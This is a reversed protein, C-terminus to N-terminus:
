AKRTGTQLGAILKKLEEQATPHSVSGWFEVASAAGITAALPRHQTLKVNIRPVNPVKLAARATAVAESIVQSDPVVRDVYGRQLAEQPTFMAGLQLDWKANRVGVTQVALIQLWTPPTIGIAAERLGISFKPNDGVIRYDCGMALVTGGAPASGNIAAVTLLPSTFLKKFTEQFMGFYETLRAEKADVLETLDLGASFVKPLASAIVVGDVESEKELTSIAAHVEQLFPMDLQNVKPNNLRLLALRGELYEVTVKAAGSFVRPMKAGLASQLQM